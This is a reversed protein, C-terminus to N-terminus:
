GLRSGSLWLALGAYLWAQEALPRGLVAVSCSLALWGCCLALWRWGLGPDFLGMAQM